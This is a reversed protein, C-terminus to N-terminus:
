EASCVVGQTSESGAFFLARVPEGDRPPVFRRLVEVRFARDDGTMGVVGDRIDAFVVVDGALRDATRRGIYGGDLAFSDCAAGAASRLGRCYGGGGIEGRHQCVWCGVDAKCEGM